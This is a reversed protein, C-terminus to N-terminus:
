SVRTLPLFALEPFGIASSQTDMYELMLRHVEKVVANRFESGYLNAKQVKLIYSMDIVKEVQAKKKYDLQELCNTLLPLLPIFVKTNASFETLSQVLHFRLPFYQAVPALKICGLSVQVVPNVLTKMLENFHLSAIVKQWLILSHVFPWNYVSQINGKKGGIIASRLVLACQKVYLFAHNYAIQQDLSYLEILSQQMFRILNMTEATTVKTHQVYSMYMKKMVVNTIESSQSRILRLVCLFCLVRVKESSESWFTIIVKLFKKIVSPFTRIFPAMNLSHRILGCLASEDTIVNLARVLLVLYKRVVIKIVKWNKGKSPDPIKDSVTVEHPPKLGLMRYLGPTLNLYCVNCIEDFLDPSIKYRPEDESEIGAAQVLAEDFISVLKQISTRNPKSEIEEGLKSLFEETVKFRKKKVVKEEDDGDYDESDDEDDDDDEDPGEEFDLLSKENKLLFQYFDPDKKALSKMSKSMQEETLSEGDSSESDYDMDDSMTSFHEFPGPRSHGPRAFCTNAQLPPGDTLKVRNLRMRRAFFNARTM